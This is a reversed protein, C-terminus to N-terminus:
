ASTNKTTVRCRCRYCRRRRRRRHCRCRRLVSFKHANEKSEAQFSAKRCM